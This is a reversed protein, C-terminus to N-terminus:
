LGQRGPREMPCVRWSRDPVLSTNYEIACYCKDDNQCRGHGSCIPVTINLKANVMAPYAMQAPAEVMGLESGCSGGPRM